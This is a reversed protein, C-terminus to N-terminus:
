SACEEVRVADRRRKQEARRRGDRGTHAERQEPDRTTSAGRWAQPAVGHHSSFARSFAAASGYGVAFAVHEVPRSHDGLLRRAEQMRVERLVEVPSRGLARRFREGLASRSLHALRAMREVTWPEGPRATVAAVIAAVVPDPSADGGDRREEELWSATMAAGILSGYSKVFLETRRRDELPCKGVLAAVGVHRTGFDRVVLPSPLRHVPVVLRLDAVVLDSHESAILRHATRADVLVADGGVLLETGGATELTVAGDRVLSWRPGPLDALTM